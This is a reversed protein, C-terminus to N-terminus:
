MCVVTAGLAEPAAACVCVRMNIVVFSPLSPGAPRASGPTGM